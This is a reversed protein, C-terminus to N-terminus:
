KWETFWIQPVARNSNQKWDVTNYQISRGILSVWSWEVVVSLDIVISVSQINDDCYDKLRDNRVLWIM